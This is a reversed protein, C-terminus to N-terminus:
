IVAFQSAYMKFRTHSYSASPTCVGPAQREQDAGM